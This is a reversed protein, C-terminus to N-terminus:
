TANRSGAAPPGGRFGHSGQREHPPAAPSLQQRGACHRVEAVHDLCFLRYQDTVRRELESAAIAGAKVLALMEVTGAPLFGLEVARVSSGPPLRDPSMQREMPLRFDILTRLGLAELRVLDAETLGGLNDARYV